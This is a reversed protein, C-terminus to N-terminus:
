WRPRPRPPEVPVRRTRLPLPGTRDVTGVVFVMMARATATTVAMACIDAVAETPVSNGPHASQLPMRAYRAQMAIARKGLMTMM